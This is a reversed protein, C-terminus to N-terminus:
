NNWTLNVRGTITVALGARKGLPYSPHGLTYTNLGAATGRPSFDSSQAASVITVGPYETFNRHTVKRGVAAYAAQEAATMPCSGAAHLNWTSSQALDGDIIQYDVGTACFEVRCQRRTEYARMKARTLDRQVRSVAGRYLYGPKWSQYSPIAIASVVGIIAVVIMLELLTFGAQCGVLNRKKHLAIKM